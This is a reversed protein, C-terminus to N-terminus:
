EEAFPLIRVDGDFCPKLGDISNFVFLRAYRNDSLSVAGTKYTGAAANAAVERKTVSVLRNDADYVAAVIVFGVGEAAKDVSAYVEASDSYYNQQRDRENVFRENETVSYEAATYTYETEAAYIQLSEAIDVVPIGNADDECIGATKNSKLRVAANEGNVSLVLGAKSPIEDLTLIVDRNAADYARESVISAGDATFDVGEITAADLGRSFHVRVSKVTPPVIRAASDDGSVTVTNEDADLFKVGWVEPYLSTLRVDDLIMKTGAAAANTENTYRWVSFEGATQWDFDQIVNFSSLPVVFELWGGDANPSSPYTNVDPIVVEAGLDYALASGTPQFALRMAARKATQGGTYDFVRVCLATNQLNEVTIGYDAGNKLRMWGATDICWKTKLSGTMTALSNTYIYNPKVEWEGNWASMGDKFFTHEAYRERDAAVTSVKITKSAPYRNNGQKEDIRYYYTEGPVLSRDEFKTVTRDVTKILAGNRYIEYETAKETQTWSMSIYDAGKNDITLVSYDECLYTAGLTVTGSEYKDADEAPVNLNGRINLASITTIKDVKEASEAKRQWVFDKIPVVVWSFEGDADFRGYNALDVGFVNVTSGDVLYLICDHLDGSNKAMYIAIAAGERQADTLSVSINSVFSQESSAPFGMTKRAGNYIVASYSTAGAPFATLLQVIVSFVVVVSLLKKM